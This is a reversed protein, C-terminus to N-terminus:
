DQRVDGAVKLAVDLMRVIKALYNRCDKLSWEDCNYATVPTGNPLHRVHPQYAVQGIIVVPLAGEENFIRLAKGVRIATLEQRQKEDDDSLKNLREPERLEGM